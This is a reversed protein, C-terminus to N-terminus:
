SQGGTLTIYIKNGNNLYELNIRPTEHLEIDLTLCWIVIILHIYHGKHEM